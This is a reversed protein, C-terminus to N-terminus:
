PGMRRYSSEPINSAQSYSPSSKYSSAPINTHLLQPRHNSTLPIHQCMSGSAHVYVHTYTVYTYM